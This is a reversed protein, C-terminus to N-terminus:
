SVRILGRRAAIASAETRGIADLKRLISKVHHKATGESIYLMRGIEKNSRGGALYQLVETERNSLEPHSMSEALKLGIEAPLFTEGKAVRHVSERIQQPDAGKVLFAKAGARLAQRIDQESEYSTMVIIRPKPIRTMLDRIVELGDKKPMRLDLILIDPSLQDYLLCAEEGDRAQGVVKLDNQLALITALGERIVPHDDSILIRIKTNV